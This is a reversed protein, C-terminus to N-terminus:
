LFTISSTMAPEKSSDILKLYIGSDSTKAANMLRELLEITVHDSSSTRTDDSYFSFPFQLETSSIKHKQQEHHKTQVSPISIITSNEVQNSLIDHSQGNETANLNISSLEWNSIYMKKNFVRQYRDVMISMILGTTAIGFM